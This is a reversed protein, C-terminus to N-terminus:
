VEGPCQWPWPGEIWDWTKTAESKKAKLPGFQGTYDEVAQEMAKRQKQYYALACHDTPHTDLYLIIDDLTFSTMQVQRLLTKRNADM